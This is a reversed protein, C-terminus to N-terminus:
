YCSCTHLNYTSDANKSGKFHITHGVKPVFGNGQGEFRSCSGLKLRVKQGDDCDVDVYKNNIARIKGKNGSVSEFGSSCSFDGDFGYSGQNNWEKGKNKIQDDFCSGYNQEFIPSYITIAKIEITVTTFSVQIQPISANYCKSMYQFWDNRGFKFCPEIDRDDIVVDKCDNCSYQVYHISQLVEKIASNM